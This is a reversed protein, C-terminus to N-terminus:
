VRCMNHMSTILYIEAVEILKPSKIRGVGVIDLPLPSILDFYDLKM